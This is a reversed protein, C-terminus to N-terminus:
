SAKQCKKHLYIFYKKPAISQSILMFVNEKYNLKLNSVYNLININFVYYIQDYIIPLKLVSYFALNM